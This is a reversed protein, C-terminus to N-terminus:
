VRERCSARGIKYRFGTLHSFKKNKSSGELHATAGLLSMSLSGALEEPRKYQIDLVSSMKDGFRADFGGSSFLISSTLDSNLFSLGEQQGSRILFPRYIEIDNVYVLNEDFNGGRVSYQSSLESTSAVGPLTKILSELSGSVSPIVSVEKPDIRQLNTSRVRDDQIVIDPLMETADMLKIDLTKVEGRDLRLPLEQKEYGIFSFIVLITTDSPVRFEFRGNKDSITGGPKGFVAINVLELSKGRQDAVQGKLLATNEQQGFVQTSLLCSTLMAVLLLKSKLQSSKEHNTM